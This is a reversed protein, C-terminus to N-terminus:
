QSLRYNITGSTYATCHVRYQVGFEPEEFTESCPATFSIASGLATLPLWTMGQDFSRELVVTGVFSGWLSFNFPAAGDVSFIEEPSGSGSTGVGTLSGTIIM